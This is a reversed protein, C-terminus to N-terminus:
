NIYTNADKGLWEIIKAFIEMRPFFGDGIRQVTPRCVKLEKAFDTQTIQDRNLKILIDTHLKKYDTRM